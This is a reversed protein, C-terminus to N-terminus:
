PFLLTPLFIGFVSKGVIFHEGIPPLIVGFISKGVMFHESCLLSTINTHVLGPLYKNQIKLNYTYFM